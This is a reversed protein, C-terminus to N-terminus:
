PSGMGSEDSEDSESSSSKVDALDLFYQLSDRISKAKLKAGQKTNFKTSEVECQISEPAVYEDRGRKVKYWAVKKSNTRAYYKLQGVEQTAVPQDVQARGLELAVVRGFRWRTHVELSEPDSLIAVEM